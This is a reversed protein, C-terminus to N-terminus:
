RRVEITRERVVEPGSGSRVAVRVLYEGPELRSIDLQQSVVTFPGAAEGGTAVELAARGSGFIRRLLSSGGPREVRVKLEYGDGARMGRLEFMLSLLDGSRLVPVPDVWAMEGIATVPWELDRGVVGAVLDSLAVEGSDSGALFSITVPGTIYGSSDAEVLARVTHKGPPVALPIRIVRRGTGGGAVSVVTDIAAVRTGTGDIANARVRVPSSSAEHGLAVIVQLAATEMNGGVALLDVDAELSRSPRTPWSDTTTGLRIAAEGNSRDDSVYRSASARGAVQMRSYIPDLRERSSVVRGILDSGPGFSRPNEGLSSRQDAIFSAEFGVIDLVGAVLRYDQVDNRAVFHFVLNRPSRRYLWSENPELGPASVTARDDPEGHRIYIVGRDDFEQQTSRYREVIDYQRFTSVLRYHRRAHDLRRYHESLRSGRPYLEEDDRRDWFARVEEVRKAPPLLLLALTSDQMVHQLDNRFLDIAASGAEGLARYWESAGDQRGLILMTAALEFRAVANTGDRAVLRRLIVLSSDLSGAEREVRGRILLLEPSDQSVTSAARRLAEMAVGTRVNVRQRLATNGLEVLASVFSPDVAASRAFANVSRTLADRGLMTQLGRFLSFESDGVGLEALGLGYWGWPWGPEEQTAWEFEGSADDYHRRRESGTALEGMRLAIMGLKLHLMADRTNARAVAILAAEGQRLAPLDTVMALSDRYRELEVREAPRQATLAAMGGTTVLAVSLLPILFRLKM